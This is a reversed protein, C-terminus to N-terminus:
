LKLTTTASSVKSGTKLAVKIKIKEHHRRMALGANSLPVKIEHSGASLTKRYRKLGKGTVTVAGKATLFFSVAVNKGSLKRKSITVAKCGTVAIKTSQTLLAGNQGVITTPMVLNQACLSGYAAFASHPGRPLVADFTSFPADPVANFTSSTIGKKINTQGDLILTIGEGQLVFEADPFAAGGHSVLYGPGTLPSNLIPTHITATGIVSGSPCTAPNAEFVAALCAKQITTLRSPLQKPLVLVTKAINAQGPGSTVKIHLSAGNAKSTRGATVATLKPKFPLTACNAVQFPVSAPASAGQTSSMIGTVALPSCNTPNFAFGARDVTVNVHKIQLPIGDLIQPLPDSTVTLASTHPDVEIRARVIVTGLSFPGAIAPTVISLGYPAGEYPGTIFVQGPVTFPDTGLGVSAVTHGILSQPGCAGQAAQPEPCPTVSSLLGLLGPPLHLQVAGLNQNGDERSITTTFPTFAGAQLSTSGATLSPSFPLPNQCPTGNPGQTIQFSSSPTAPATGSWPTLSATTTYTGCYAPTSLPARPGGFFELKLAEFPLQPTSEFTSVLQGTALNPSVKGALKVRVGSVPDEALIYLAILSGFPNANQAALYVGGELENPLLPTKIRVTGVKSAEPCSPAGPSELGVQGLSCAELGDASAPNIQMGEPLTVTTDKVDAEALASASLTSEQPVHLAVNLGTPTSAAEGVPAVEISSAFPLRDCGELSQESLAERPALFVGPQSWADAEVTSKLSGTCSTPLTLFAQAQLPGPACGPETRLCEWGRSRNHSPDGPVGWITVSSSLFGALESIDKVSVTVGYDGGTRVSTDLIVAVGSAIFGFRAPEGRAPTMNFLPVAFTFQHTLAPENVTGVAVGVASEAPCQNIEAPKITHGFELDTCQAVASPAGILGPPLNVRLDKALAAPQSALRHQGFFEYSEAVRNLAIATTLQFPHSGAQVDPSGDENEPSLEYGEIGFPTPAGNVTVPKTLSASPAGGGEIRVEDDAGSPAEKEVKVAIAIELSGYPSLTGKFECSLSSPTCTVEGGSKPRGAATGPEFSEGSIATASLGPPLEAIVSVPTTAGNVETDGLNSAVVFIKGEGGPPLNTPTASSSLQWRPAAAFAPSVRLVGLALCGVAAGLATFRIWAVTARHDSPRFM